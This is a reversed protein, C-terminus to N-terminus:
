GDNDDGDMKVSTRVMMMMVLVVIKLSTVIIIMMMMVMKVSTEIMVLITKISTEMMMMVRVTTMIVMKVSTRVLTASGFNNINPESEPEPEM